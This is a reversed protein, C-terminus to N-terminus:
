VWALPEKGHHPISLWFAIKLPKSLHRLWYLEQLAISLTQTWVALLCTFDPHQHMQLRLAPHSLLLLHTQLSALWDTFGFWQPGPESPEVFVYCLHIISPSVWLWSRAVVRVQLRVWRGPTGVHMYVVDSVAWNLVWLFKLWSFCVNKCKLNHRM